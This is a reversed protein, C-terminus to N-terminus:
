GAFAFISNGPASVADEVVGCAFVGVRMKVNVFMAVRFNLLMKEETIIEASVGVSGLVVLVQFFAEHELM